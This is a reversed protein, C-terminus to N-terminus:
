ESDQSGGLEADAADAIESERHEEHEEGSDEGEERATGTTTPLPKSAQVSWVYVRPRSVRPRTSHSHAFARGSFANPPFSVENLEAAVRDRHHRAIPALLPDNSEAFKGFEMLAKMKGLIAQDYGQGMDYSSDAAGDGGGRLALATLRIENM